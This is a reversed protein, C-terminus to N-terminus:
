TNEGISCFWKGSFGIDSPNSGEHLNQGGQPKCIEGVLEIRINVFSRDVFGIILSKNKLVMSVILLCAFFCLCPLVIVFVSM